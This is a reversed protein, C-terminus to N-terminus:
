YSWSPNQFEAINRQTKQKSAQNLADIVSWKISEHSLNSPPVNVTLTGVSVGAQVHMVKSAYASNAAASKSGYYHELAMRTNGHYKDLLQKLYEIGGFINQTESYPDVGLIKATGPQLQFMGTAHSGPVTSQIVRGAADYQRMGSEVQAVAMALELPVGLQKAVKAIYARTDTGPGALTGQAVAGGIAGTPLYNQLNLATGVVAGVLTKSGPSTIKAAEMLETHAGTFDGKAIDVAASALHVMLIEAQTLGQILVTVFNLVHEIARAMKEFNTTTGEISKDGSLVGILNTFGAATAKMLDWTAMLVNKVDILVPKLNNAIWQAIAPMNAIFWDNFNRMRHLVDDITTGFARALDQVVNMTLYQLEVGFRTFEFRVDRIKLMQNEFDPGLEETLARQDKVLQNFRRALEPDWMINELPQGLADLAIKLERAVPLSTYWHLALLRYEQDAMATKDAIGIAALGIAAFAGVAGAQFELVKKGMKFFENDVLSTTGRLASAFRAFGVTDEVFGLKVLYESLVNAGTAM